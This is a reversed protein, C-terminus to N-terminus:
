GYIHLAEVWLYAFSCKANETLWVVDCCDSYSVIADLTVAQMEIGEQHLEVSLNLLSPTQFFTEKKTLKVSHPLGLSIVVGGTRVADIQSFTPGNNKSHTEKIHMKRFPIKHFHIKRYKRFTYM